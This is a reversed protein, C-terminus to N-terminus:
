HDVAVEIVRANVVQQHHLSDVSLKHHGDMVFYSEGIKLLNILPLVVEHFRGRDENTWSHRIHGQRPMLSEDFDSKLGVVGRIQDGAVTKVGMDHMDAFQKSLMYVDLPLLNDNGTGLSSTLQDWFAEKIEHPIAGQKDNM